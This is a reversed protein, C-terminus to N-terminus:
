RTCPASRPTRAARRRASGCPRRESVCVRACRAPGCVQPGACARRSSAAPAPAAPVGAREDLDAAPRGERRPARAAVRHCPRRLPRRRARVRDAERGAVVVAPSGASSTVCRRPPPLTTSSSRAPAWTRAPLASSRSWRVTPHCRPTSSTRPPIARSTVGGCAFDTNVALLCIGLPFRSAPGTDTRALGAGLWGTGIVARAVADRNAGDAQRRHAGDASASLWTDTGGGRTLQRKGTGDPAVRCVDTGCRYLLLDAWAPAAHVCLVAVAGAAAAM